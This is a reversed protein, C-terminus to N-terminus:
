MFRNYIIFFSNIKNYNYNLKNTILILIDTYTNNLNIAPLFDSSYIYKLTSELKNISILNFKDILQNLQVNLKILNLKINLKILDILQDKILISIFNFKSKFIKIFINNLIINIWNSIKILKLELILYNRLLLKLNLLLESELKIITSFQETLKVVHNNLISEISHKSLYYVGIVFTLICFIVIREGDYSFIEKSILWILLYIIPINFPM